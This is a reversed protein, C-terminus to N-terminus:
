LTRARRAESGTGRSCGGVKGTAPNLLKERAKGSRGGKKGGRSILFLYIWPEQRMLGGWEQQRM